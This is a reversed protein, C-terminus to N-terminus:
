KTYRFTRWESTGQRKGGGHPFLATVRWRGEQAGVWDFYYETQNIKKKIYTRGVDACWKGSECCHKCDIKVVYGIASPVPKWKLTTERPFHNFIRGDSPYVLTPAKRSSTASLDSLSYSHTIRPNIWAAWDQGSSEGADVRLEFYVKQKAYESLDYSFSRLKGTYRKYIDM